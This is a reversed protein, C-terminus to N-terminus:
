YLVQNNSRNAELINSLNMDIMNETIVIVTQKGFLYTQGGYPTMVYKIRKSSSQQNRFYLLSLQDQIQNNRRCFAEETRFRIVSQMRSYRYKTM